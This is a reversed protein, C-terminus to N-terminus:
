WFSKRFTSAIKYCQISKELTFLLIFLCSSRSTHSRPSLSTHSHTTLAPTPQQSIVLAFFLHRHIKRVCVRVCHIVICFRCSSVISVQDRVHSLLLHMDFIIGQFRQQPTAFTHSLSYAEIKYRKFKLMNQLKNGHKSTQWMKNRSKEKWCEVSCVTDVRGRRGNIHTDYASRWTDKEWTRSM